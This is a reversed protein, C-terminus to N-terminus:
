GRGLRRAVRAARAKKRRRAKEEPTVTGAYSHKKGAAVLATWSMTRNKQELTPEQYEVVTKNM